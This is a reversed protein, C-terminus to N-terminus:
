TKALKLLNAVSKGSATELQMLECKQPGLELELQHSNRRFLELV